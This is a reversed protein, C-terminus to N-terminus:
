FAYELTIDEMNVCEGDDNSVLFYNKPYYSAFDFKSDDDKVVLYEPQFRECPCHGDELDNGCKFCFFLCTMIDYLEKTTDV